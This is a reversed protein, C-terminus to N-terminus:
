GTRSVKTSFAVLSQPASRSRDVSDVTLDKAHRSVVANWGLESIEPSLVYNPRPTRDEVAPGGKLTPRNMNGIDERVGFIFHGLRLLNTVESRHESNGHQSFTGEDSHNMDLSCFDLRESVLLDLQDCGEGVLRHDGDLVHPQELFQSARVRSSARDTPSSFAKPSTPWATLEVRSRSVTRLVITRWATWSEPVSQPTM